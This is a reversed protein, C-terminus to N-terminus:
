LESIIIVYELLFGKAYHVIQPNRGKQHFFTQYDQNGPSCLSYLNGSWFIVM